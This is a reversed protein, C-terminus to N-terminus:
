FNVGARKLASFLGKKCLQEERLEEAMPWIDDHVDFPMVLYPVDHKVATDADWPVGYFAVVPVPPIATLASKVVEEDDFLWENVGDYHGYALVFAIDKETALRMAAVHPDSEVEVEFGHRELCPLFLGYCFLEEPHVILATKRGEM